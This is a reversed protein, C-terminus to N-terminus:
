LGESSTQIFARKCFLAKYLYILFSYLVSTTFNNMSIYVIFFSIFNDNLLGNYEGNETEPFKEYDIEKCGFGFAGCEFVVEGVLAYNEFEIKVVSHEFIMEGNRDALGACKCKTEIDIEM